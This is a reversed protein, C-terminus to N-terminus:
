QGSDEPQDHLIGREYDWEPLWTVLDSMANALNTYASAQAPLTTASQLQEFARYAARGADMWPQEPGATPNPPSSPATDPQTM